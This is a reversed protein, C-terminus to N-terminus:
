VSIYQIPWHNKFHWLHYPPIEGRDFRDALENWKQVRDPYWQQGRMLADNKHKQFIFEFMEAWKRYSTNSVISDGGFRQSYSYLTEPVYVFDNSYKQCLTLLFDWDEMGSIKEDFCVDKGFVRRLHMLGNGDTHLKRHVIDCVTIEDAFERSEDIREVLEGEIWLELLREGKPFSFVAGKNKAIHAFMRELYNPFLINDSDLYAVWESEALSVAKNRAASVGKREQRYYRVRSDEYSEVLDKTNDTSGDDVIVLEWDSISQALVSNITRALTHARNYTPTIISVSPLSM